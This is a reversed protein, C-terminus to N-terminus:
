ENESVEKKVRPIMFWLCTLACIDALFSVPYAINPKGLGTLGLFALRSIMRAGFFLFGAKAYFCKEARTRQREWEKQRIRGLLFALYMSGMFGSFVEVIYKATEQKQRWASGLVFSFLGTVLILGIGGLIYGAAYKKM